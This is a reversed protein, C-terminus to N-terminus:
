PIPAEPPDTTTKSAKDVSLGKVYSRKVTAKRKEM